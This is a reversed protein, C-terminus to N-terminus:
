KRVARGVERVARKGAVRGEWVDRVARWTCHLEQAIANFNSPDRRLAASIAAYREDTMKM